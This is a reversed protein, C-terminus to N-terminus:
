GLRNRNYPNPTSRPKATVNPLMQLSTLTGVLPKPTDFSDGSPWLWPIMRLRVEIEDPVDDSDRPKADAM